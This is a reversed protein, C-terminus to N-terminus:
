CERKSNRSHRRPSESGDQDIALRLGTLESDWCFEADFAIDERIGISSLFERAHIVRDGRANKVKLLLGGGGESRLPMLVIDNDQSLLAAAKAGHFYKGYIGAPVHINGRHVVLSQASDAPTM